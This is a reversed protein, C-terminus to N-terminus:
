LGTLMDEPLKLNRKRMTTKIWKTLKPREDELQWKYFKKQSIKYDHKIWESKDSRELDSIFMYLDMKKIKDFDVQIQIAISKL